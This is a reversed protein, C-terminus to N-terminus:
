QRIRYFRSRGTVPVTQPNAQSPANTWNPPLLSDTQDLTGTGNWSITLSTGSITPANFKARSVRANGPPGVGSSKFGGVEPCANRQKM